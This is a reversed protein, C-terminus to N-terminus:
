EYPPANEQFWNEVSENRTLRSGPIDSYLHAKFTSIDAFARERVKQYLCFYGAPQVTFYFKHVVLHPRRLLKYVDRVGFVCSSSKYRGHCYETLNKGYYWYQYRSIYYGPKSFDQTNNEFTYTRYKRKLNLWESGNFSGPIPFESTILNSSSDRNGFMSAWFSEDPFSTTNLFNLLERSEARSVLFNAAKRSFTASLSSKFLTLNYPVTSNIKNRLRGRQFQEIEVNASGNLQKFIEVMERNTRLPLDVGSLYTVIVNPFCQQLALISNTFDTTADHSIALCYLNQPHYIASLMYYVQHANYHVLLGYAIPFNQEESSLPFTNFLYRIRVKECWRKTDSWFPASENGYNYIWKEAWAIATESATGNALNNCFDIFNHQLLEAPLANGNLIQM